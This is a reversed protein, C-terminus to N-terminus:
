CADRQQHQSVFVVQGLGQAHLLENFSEFELTEVPALHPPETDRAGDATKHTAACKRSKNMGEVSHHTNSGTRPSKPHHHFKARSETSLPNRCLLLFLSRTFVCIYANSCYSRCSINTHVIQHSIQPKEFPGTNICLCTSKSSYSWVLKIAWSRQVRAQHKHAAVSNPHISVPFNHKEKSFFITPSRWRSVSVECEVRM